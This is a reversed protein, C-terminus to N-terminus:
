SFLLFSLIFAILIGIFDAFLGVKLAYRTKTVKISGFYLALVYITTDTCGQIVSALNGNFSDPGYKLYIDSLIALTASGSIPRLISMAIIESPVVLKSFFSAITTLFNSDLFINVALVMSVLAPIINVSLKLGDKVGDLFSNYLNNKKILAYVIILLIFIPLIYNSIM